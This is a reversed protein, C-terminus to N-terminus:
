SKLVSMVLCARRRLECDVPTAHCDSQWQASHSRLKSSSAIYEETRKWEIDFSAGGLAAREDSGSKSGFLLHRKFM